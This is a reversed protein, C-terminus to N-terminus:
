GSLYAGYKEKAMLPIGLNSVNELVILEFAIVNRTTFQGSEIADNNADVVKGSISLDQAIAVFSLAFLITSLYLRLYNTM